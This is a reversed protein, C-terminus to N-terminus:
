NPIPPISIKTPLTQQKSRVKAVQTAPIWRIGSRNRAKIGVKGTKMNVKIVSETRRTGGRYEIVVQDGPAVRRTAGEGTAAITRFDPTGLAKRGAEARDRKRGDIQGKTEHLRTIAETIQSPTYTSKAPGFYAAGRIRWAYAKGPFGEPALSALTYEVAGRSRGRTIRRADAIVCDGKVRRTDIHVTDGYKYANKAM